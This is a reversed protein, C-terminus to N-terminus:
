NVLLIEGTTRSDTIHARVTRFLVKKRRIESGVCSNKLNSDHFQETTALSSFLGM